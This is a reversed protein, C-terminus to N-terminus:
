KTQLLHWKGVMIEFALPDLYLGYEKVIEEIEFPNFMGKTKELEGEGGYIKSTGDNFLIYYDLSRVKLETTIVSLENLKKSYSLKNNNPSYYTYSGDENYSEDSVFSLINDDVLEKDKNYVKCSDYSNYKVILEGKDTINTIYGDGYENNM